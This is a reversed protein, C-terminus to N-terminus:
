RRLRGVGDGETRRNRTYHHRGKVGGDWELGSGAGCFFELCGGRAGALDVLYPNDERGQRRGCRTANRFRAGGRRM